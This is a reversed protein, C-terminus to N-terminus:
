KELVEIMIYNRMGPYHKQIATIIDVARVARLIAKGMKHDYVCVTSPRVPELVDLRISQGSSYHVGIGTEAAYSVEAILGPDKMSKIKHAIIRHVINGFNQETGYGGLARVEAATSKALAQIEANRPCLRDLERQSVAGVWMARDNFADGPIYESAPAAFIATGDRNRRIAETTFLSIAAQLIRDSLRKLERPLRQPARASQFFAEPEAGSTTLRSRSLIEGSGGDRITQTLGSTEFVTRTGDPATVTHQEDWEAHPNSRIRISLVRSGDATVVEEQTTSPASGGGISGTTEPDDGAALPGAATPDGSTWRGGGLQGAPERPQDPDYKQSLLWGIRLLKTEVTLGALSARIENLDRRHGSSLSM